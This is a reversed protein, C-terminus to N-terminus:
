TLEAFEPWVEQTILREPVYFFGQSGRYPVPQELPRINDLVWGYRGPAFDGMQRETWACHDTTEGPARRQADLEGVTFTDTKRCDVLDCVAVLSGFPLDKYAKRHGWPDHLAGMWNYCCAMHILESRVHRKAAHIVLPGRYLTPWSRTEIRKSGLAVASAWPQWLSIGRVTKEPTYEEDSM